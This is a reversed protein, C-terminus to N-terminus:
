CLLPLRDADEGLETREHPRLPRRGTGILAWTTDDWGAPSPRGLLGDLTRRVVALPSTSPGPADLSAILDVHHLAAETVLTAQLDDVRLTRGQTPAIASPEVRAALAVVAQLTEVYMSRLGDLRYASAITRTARLQRSEPDSRGPSDVWYTVADRDAIGTSSATALAVLARQADGLHHLLLDRVTWGPCGSPQWSTAETLGAALECLDGYATRLPELAQEVRGRCCRNGPRAVPWARAAGSTRQSSISSTPRESATMPPCCARSRFTSGHSGFM